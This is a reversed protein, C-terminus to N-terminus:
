PRYEDAGIDVNIGIKRSDGEFDTNPLRSTDNTGADICPSDSQLHFDGKLEDEMQPPQRINGNFGAYGDQDIDCTSLFADGSIQPQLPDGTATTNGWLICNIISNGQNAVVGGAQMNSSNGVITLNILGVDAVVQAIHIGAAGDEATNGYFISNAIEVPGQAIYLGGGAQADNHIFRNNILSIGSLFFSNDLDTYMGGGILSSNNEFLCDSVSIPSNHNYIGGAYSDSGNSRFICDQVSATSTSDNYIASGDLAQNDSFLTNSIRLLTANSAYIGAGSTTASNSLITSNTILLSGITYIAGGYSRVAWNDSFNCNDISFLKTAYIGGGLDASSSTVSCNELYTDATSNIGAGKDSYANTITIGDLRTNDAAIRFCGVQNNGDVITKTELIRQQPSTEDGAFGGYIALPKDVLIPATM